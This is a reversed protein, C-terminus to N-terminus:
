KGPFNIIKGGTGTGEIPDNLEAEEPWASSLHDTLLGERMCANVLRVAYEVAMERSYGLSRSLEDVLRMAEGDLDLTYGM